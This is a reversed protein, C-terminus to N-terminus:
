GQAETTTVAEALVHMTEGYSECDSETSSDYDTENNGVLKAIKISHMKTDDAFKTNKIATKQKEGIKKVSSM